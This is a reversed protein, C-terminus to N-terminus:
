KKKLAEQIKREILADVQKVSVFELPNIADIVYKLEKFDESKAYNLKVQELADRVEIMSHGLRTLETSTNELDQKLAQTDKASAGGEDSPKRNQLEEIKKNLVLLNRGLIKENRVVYQMKQSLLLISSNLAKVDAALDKLFVQGSSSGSSVSSGSAIQSSGSSQEQARQPRQHVM